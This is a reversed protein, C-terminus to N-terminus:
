LLIKYRTGGPLIRFFYLSTPIICFFMLVAAFARAAKKTQQTPTTRRVAFGCCTYFCYKCYIFIEVSISSNCIIPIDKPSHEQIAGLSFIQKFYVCCYLRNGYVNTHKKSIIGKDKKSILLYIFLAAAALFAGGLLLPYSNTPFFLAFIQALTLGKKQIANQVFQYRFQYRSYDIFPVIFWACTLLTFVLQKLLFFM